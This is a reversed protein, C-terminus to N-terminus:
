YLFVSVLVSFIDGDDLCFIGVRKFSIICYNIYNCIKNYELFYGGYLVLKREWDTM